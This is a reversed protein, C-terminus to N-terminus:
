VYNINLANPMAVVLRSPDDLMVEWAPQAVAGMYDLVELWTQM